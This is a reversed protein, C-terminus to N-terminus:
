RKVLIHRGGSSSQKEQCTIHFSGWYESPAPFHYRPRQM